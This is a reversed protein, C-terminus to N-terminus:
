GRRGRPTVFDIVNEGDPLEIRAKPKLLRRWLGVLDFIVGAPLLLASVILLMLLAVTM